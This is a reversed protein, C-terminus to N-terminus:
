TGMDRGVFIMTPVTQRRNPYIVDSNSLRKKLSKYRSDAEALKLKRAESDKMLTAAAYLVILQDDLIAKDSDSILPPLVRKGWFRVTSAGDVQPIPWVEFQLNDVTSDGGLPDLYNDWKQVPDYQQDNPFSSYEVGSIGKRLPFWFDNFLVEVKELSEPVVPFDYYREGAQMPVDYYGRLIQWDWDDYLREQERRLRMKYNELTNLGLSAQLSEGMEARLQTVLEGLTTGRM